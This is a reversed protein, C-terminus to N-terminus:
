HMNNLITQVANDVGREARLREGVKAAKDRMEGDEVARRIAKALGSATLRWRPLPRPGAGMAHVREGWFPQDAFHPVIVNPIGANLGVATTGAGGHHVVAAMRPFLWFHPISDILFIEPPVQERTVGGWGSLLIGRQGAHKLAEVAIQVNESPKRNTMSGFGVYAPPPGAELFDLLAPPPSWSEPPELFWYGSVHIWNPWDKPPPAVLPSFAYITPTQEEYLLEFPGALSAPPMELERLIGENVSHRIPQWLVQEALLHTSYNLTSGLNLWGPLLINPFEETRSLPQLATAFRPIGLKQAVFHAVVAFPSYIIADSEQCVVWFEHSLEGMITDAFQKYLVLFGLPNRSSNIFFKSAESQMIEKPNINLGFFDVGYEQAMDAFMAPAALRVEHGAAQLGKSLAVYPQVDGRSGIALVVFRMQFVGLKLGFISGSIMILPSIM